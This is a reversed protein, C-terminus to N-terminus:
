NTFTIGICTAMKLIILGYNIVLICNTSAVRKTENTELTLNLGGYENVQENRRTGGIGIVRMAKNRQTTEMYQVEEITGDSEARCAGPLRQDTSTSTTSNYHM